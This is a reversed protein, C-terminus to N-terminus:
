MDKNQGMIVLIGVVILISVLGIVVPWVSPAAAGSEQGQSRLCQEYRRQAEIAEPNTDTNVRFDVTVIEGGAFFSLQADLDVPPSIEGSTLKRFNRAFDSDPIDTFAVAKHPRITYAVAQGAPLGTLSPDPTELNGAKRIVYITSATGNRVGFIPDYAIDLEFAELPWDSQPATNDLIFAKLEPDALWPRLEEGVGITIGPPLTGTKIHSEYLYPAVAEPECAAAPLPAVLITQMVVVIIGSLALRFAQKGSIRPSKM